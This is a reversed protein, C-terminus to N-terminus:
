LGWQKRREDWIKERRALKAEDTQNALLHAIVGELFRAGKFLITEGGSLNNELYSLVEKPEVFKEIVIDSSVLERLKPYTYKIIRPGMLIIRDLKVSAILDALKLHEEEEVTGQELMDGLVAWKPNAPLHNYMNLIATMSSLNANYTSDVITTEKKGKFISSRAPPLELKSFSYDPTIKLYESLAFTMAISYFVEEPLLAPISVTHNNIRYVTKDKDITYEQLDKQKTIERIDTRTRGLQKKMLESDGNILALRQTNEIFYGYEYAIADEITDFTRKPTNLSFNMSHTRSTSIWLTVEPKLWASLFEGEGPRDADCEVIYISQSPVSSFTKFPALFVISIWEEKKLTKRQLGLIDFPIGIASNAHHSYKARDGLQAEVLHLLTTKGSSGTLVVIRPHWKKLKIDAFFKFYAAALFYLKKKLSEMM